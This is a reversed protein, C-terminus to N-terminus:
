LAVPRGAPAPAELRSPAGHGQGAAEWQGTTRRRARCEVANSSVGEPGGAPPELLAGPEQLAPGRGPGGAPPLPGGPSQYRWLLTALRSAMLVGLAGWVGPLGLGLPEVGLLLGAATAAALVMAGALFGFDSAGVMVGDLVYVASNLPLLGVALPLVGLMAAEVGADASFFGPIAPEAAWFCLALASGTLVGLQLLRDSVARAAAKDGRGLEVAVLSQGAVALSDVVLSSLLWLQMVVQHAAIPEPGLRAATASALTKTGLLLATRMLVAGGARLFPTFEALAGPGLLVPVRLGGLADRRAWLLWLYAGAAGWEATTTAAAAGAVGWGLGLILMADLGLNVANAGLTVALPTRMDQMGRFTGQAVTM